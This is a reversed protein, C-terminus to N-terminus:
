YRVQAELRRTSAEKGTGEDFCLPYSRLASCRVKQSSHLM